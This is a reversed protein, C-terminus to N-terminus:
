EGITDSGLSSGFDIRRRNIGGWVINGGVTALCVTGCISAGLVFNCQSLFILFPRRNTYTIVDDLINALSGLVM